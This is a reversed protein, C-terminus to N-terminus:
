HRPQNNNPNGHGGNALDRLADVNRIAQLARQVEDYSMNEINRLVRNATDKASASLTVRDSGDRIGPLDVDMFKSLVTGIKNYSDYLSKTKDAFATIRDIKGTKKPMKNELSAINNVRNVADQLEKTTLRDKYKLLTEVDGSAIAKEKYEQVQEPTLQQSSKKPQTLRKRLSDIKAVAKDGFKKKGSGGEDGGEERAPGVGYHERGLPTLSGDPNQYRRVGHKAGKVQYHYLENNM